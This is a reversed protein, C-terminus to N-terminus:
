FETCSIHINKGKNNQRLSVWDHLTSYPLGLEEALQRQSCNKIKLLSNIVDRREEKSITKKKCDFLFNEMIKEVLKEPTM